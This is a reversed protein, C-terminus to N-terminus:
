HGSAKAFFKLVPNTCLSWFIYDHGNTSPFFTQQKVSPKIKKLENHFMVTQSAPSIKDRMGHALFCPVTWTNIMRMPNDTNTWREKNKEYAGYYGTYIPEGAMKTQDFDGSLSAIAAFIQPCNAGLLVAGRAGTSIGAVL